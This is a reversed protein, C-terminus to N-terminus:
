TKRTKLKKRPRGLYNFSTSAFSISASGSNQKLWPIGITALTPSYPLVTAQVKTQHRLYSGYFFTRLRGTKFDYSCLRGRISLYVVEDHFTQADVVFYNGIMEPSNRVRHLYRDRSEEGFQDINIHHKLVWISKCPDTLMWVRLESMDVCVYHLYGDSDGLCALRVDRDLWKPGPVTIVGSLEKDVEFTIINQNSTLWYFRGNVYIHKNEYLEDKCYCVEFSTKWKGTESSYIVFSYSNQDHKPHQISVVKFCPIMKASSGFPYFALGFISGLHCDTPRLTLREQTMPNWVVIDLVEVDRTRRSRYCILGDCSAMIVSTPQPFSEDMLKFIGLEGNVRAYLFYDDGCFNGGYEEFEQVLLGSICRSRQHHIRVFSPDSILSTWRKSVCKCRLLNKASLRSLIEKALDENSFIVEM